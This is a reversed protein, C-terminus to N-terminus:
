SAKTIEECGLIIATSSAPDAVRMIRLGQRWATDGTRRWQLTRGPEPIAAFLARRVRFSAAYNPFLGAAALEPDSSSFSGGACALPQASGSLLIEAPFQAELATQAEADFALLSAADM